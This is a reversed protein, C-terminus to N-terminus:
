YAESQRRFVMLNASYDGIMKGDFIELMRDRARTDHAMGQERMLDCWYEKSRLNVHLHGGQGPPAATFVLAPAVRSLLSAVHREHRRPIHEAVELCICLNAVAPVEAATTLDLRMTNTLGRQRAMQVSASSYDFPFIHPVGHNRLALSIGGSGCGVDAVSDPRFVEVLATALLDYVRSNSAEISQYYKSSYGRDRSLIGYGMYRLAEYADAGIVRRLPHLILSKFGPLYFNM